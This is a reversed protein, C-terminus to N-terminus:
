NESRVCGQLYAGIFMGALGAFIPYNGLGISAYAAGPCIGSLGWGAGFIIGGVLVNRDLVKHRKGFKKGTIPAKRLYRTGIEFALGAVAAAGFMVFILGLDQLTLFNLVVEPKAMQSLGLGFGFVTGGILTLLKIKMQKM